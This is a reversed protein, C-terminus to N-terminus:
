GGIRRDREFGAHDGVLDVVAMLDAEAVLAAVDIGVIVALRQGGLELQAHLVAADVCLQSDRARRQCLGARPGM